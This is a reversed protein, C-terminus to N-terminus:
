GGLGVDVDACVCACVGWVQRTREKDRVEAPQQAAFGEQAKRYLHAMIDRVEERTADTDKAGQHAKAMLLLLAPDLQGTAALGDLKKDM